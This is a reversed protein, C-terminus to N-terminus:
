YHEKLFTECISSMLYTDLGGAAFSKKSEEYLHEYNELEDREEPLVKDMMMAANFEPHGQFALINNGIGFVEVPTSESTGYLTAGDPLVEVNDGHCEVIYMYELNQPIHPQKLKRVFQDNFGNMFTIKERNMLMPKNELKMKGVRGGFATALSQCGFCIGIIKIDSHYRVLKKLRELFIPVAELSPDYVSWESGSIVIGKIRRLEEESPFEMQGIHYTRWIEGKNKFHGQYLAEYFNAWQPNVECNFIAYHNKIRDTTAYFHEVEAIERKLNEYKSNLLSYNSKFDSINILQLRNNQLTELEDPIEILFSYNGDQHRVLECQTFRVLWIQFLPSNWDTADQSNFLKKLFIRTAAFISSSDIAKYKGQIFTLGSKSSKLLIKDEYQEKTIAYITVVISGEM